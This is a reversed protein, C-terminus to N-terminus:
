SQEKSMGAELRPRVKNEIAAGSEDRAKELRM